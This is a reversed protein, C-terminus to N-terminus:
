QKSLNTFSNLFATIISLRGLIAGSLPDTTKENLLFNNSSYNKNGHLILLSEPLIIQSNEDTKYLETLIKELWSLNLSDSPIKNGGIYPFIQALISM